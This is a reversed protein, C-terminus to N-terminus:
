LSADSFPPTGGNIEAFAKIDFPLGVGNLNDIVEQSVNAGEGRLMVEVPDGGMARLMVFATVVGAAACLVAVWSGIRGCGHGDEDLM